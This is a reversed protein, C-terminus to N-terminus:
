LKKKLEDSIKYIVKNALKLLKKVTFPPLLSPKTKLSLNLLKDSTCDIIKRLLRKLPTNSLRKLKGSLGKKKEIPGSFISVLSIPSKSM